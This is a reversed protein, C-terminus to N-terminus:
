VVTSSYDFCCLVPVFFCVCLDTSCFLSGLFLGMCSYDLLRHYFPPLIICHLFSLKKLAHQKPLKFAVHLLTLNSCKRM